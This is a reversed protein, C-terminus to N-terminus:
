FSKTLFDSFSIMKDDIYVDGYPKGFHIEHYSVNNKKLWLLTTPEIKEKILKLDSNCSLMGRSTHIIITHGLSYLYNVRAIMEEKPLAEGYRKDIEKISLNPICLTHDLDLVFTIMKM